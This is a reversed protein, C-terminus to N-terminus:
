SAEGAAPASAQPAAAHQQLPQQQGDAAGGDVTAAAGTHQQTAADLLLRDAWLQRWRNSRKHWSAYEPSLYRYVGPGEQQQRRRRTRM